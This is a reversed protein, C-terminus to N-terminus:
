QWDIRHRIIADPYVLEIFLADGETRYGAAVTPGRQNRRFHDCLGDQRLVYTTQHHDIYLWVAQGTAPDQAVDVRRPSVPATQLGIRYHWVPQLDSDLLFLAPEDSELWGRGLLLTKGGSQTEIWPGDAPRIALPKPPREPDASTHSALRGSAALPPLRDGTPALSAARLAGDLSWPQLGGDALVLLPERGPRAPNHVLALPRGDSRGCLQIRQAPDCILIQRNSMLAALVPGIGNQAPVWQMDVLDTGTPVEPSYITESRVNFLELRRLTPDYWAIWRGSPAIALSGSGEPRWPTRAVVTPPESSPRAFRHVDGNAGLCWWTDSADTTAGAIRGPAQLPQPPGVRVLVPDYDRLADYRPTADSSTAIQLEAAHRKLSNQHAIRQARGADEGSALRGLLGLVADPHMGALQFMRLQIRGRDDLIVLSPATM